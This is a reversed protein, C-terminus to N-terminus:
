VVQRATSGNRAVDTRMTDDDNGMIGRLLGLAATSGRRLAGTLGVGTEGDDGVTASKRRASRGDKAASATPAEAVLPAGTLMLSVRRVFGSVAHGIGPQEAGDDMASLADHLPDEAADAEHTTAAAGTLSSSTSAPATATAAEARAAPRKPARKVASSSRENPPGSKNRLPKSGEKKAQKKASTDQRGRQEHVEKFRIRAKGFDNAPLRLWRGMKIADELADIDTGEQAVMLAESGVAQLQRALDPVEFPVAVTGGADARSKLSKLAAFCQASRKERAYDTGRNLVCRLAAGAPRVHRPVKSLM